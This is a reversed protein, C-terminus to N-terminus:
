LSAEQLSTDFNTQVAERIEDTYHPTKAMLYALGERNGRVGLGQAIGAATMMAVNKREQPVIVMDVVDTRGLLGIIAGVQRGLFFDASDDEAAGYHSFYDPKAALVADIVANGWETSGEDTVLREAMPYWLRQILNHDSSTMIEQAATFDGALLADTVANDTQEAGSLMKWQEETILARAQEALEPDSKRLTGAVTALAEDITGKDYDTGETEPKPVYDTAAAIAVPAFEKIAGVYLEPFGEEQMRATAANFDELFGASPVFGEAQAAFRFHMLSVEFCRGAFGRSEEHRADYKADYAIGNGSSTSPSHEAEWALFGLGHEQLAPDGSRFLVGAAQHMLYNSDHQFNAAEVEAQGLAAELGQEQLTTALGGAAVAIRDHYNGGNAEHIGTM